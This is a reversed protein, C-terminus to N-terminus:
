RGIFMLKDASQVIVNFVIRASKSLFDCFEVIPPDDASSRDITPQNCKLRAIFPRCMPRHFPALESIVDASRRGVM